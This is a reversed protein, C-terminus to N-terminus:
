GAPALKAIARRTVDGADVDRTAQGTWLGREACEQGFEAVRTALKHALKTTQAEVDVAEADKGKEARKAAAVVSQLAGRIDDLLARAIVQDIPDRAGSFSFAGQPVFRPAIRTLIQDADQRIRRGERPYGAEETKKALAKLDDAEAGLARAVLGYDHSTDLTVAPTPTPATPQAPAAATDPM